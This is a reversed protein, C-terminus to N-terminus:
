LQLSYSLLFLVLIHRLVFHVAYGHFVFRFIFLVVTATDRGKRVEKAYMDM